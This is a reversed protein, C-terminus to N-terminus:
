DSPDQADSKGDKRQRTEAFDVVEGEGSHGGPSEQLAIRAIRDLLRELHDGDTEPNMVVVRMYRRNGIRMSSLHFESEQRLISLIRSQMAEDPGCRFCLINAQPPSLCEFEPRASIRLHFRRAKAFLREVHRGLAREGVVALTLMLKLGLAPKTCEVVRPYLDPREQDSSRGLYSVEHKFAIEASHPSRFLLGTCLSSTRLMKHADWVLSDAYEIGNMLPRTKESLLAAAGHAGDVHFWLGNAQCFEGIRELPDYLGTATACANATVALVRHGAQSAQELAQALGEPRVVGLDDCPLAHVRQSGIGLIAAARHICYHSGAPALIAADAPMGQQASEPFVSARAALLATLNALSGGSTLAGSGEWGVKSLMWNVAAAEMATASPSMEFISTSSNVIGNVLDALGSAFHPVAVQHSMFHPHHLRVTGQLYVSLFSAMGEPEMGGQPIWDSLRLDKVTRSLAPSEAVSASGRRSQELYRQLVRVVEKAYDEFDPPEQTPFDLISSVRSM